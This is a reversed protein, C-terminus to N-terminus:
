GASGHNEEAFALALNLGDMFDSVKIPKTLYRFFGADLGRQIDRPMANASLAIIPIHATSKDDRLIRMAEIAAVKTLDADSYLARAGSASELAAREAEFALEQQEEDRIRRTLDSVVNADTV